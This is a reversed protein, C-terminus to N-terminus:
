CEPRISTLPLPYHSVLTCTCENISLGRGREETSEAGERTTHPCHQIHTSPTRNPPYLLTGQQSKERSCELVAKEIDFSVTELSVPTVNPSGSTIVGTSRSDDDDDVDREGIDRKDKESM